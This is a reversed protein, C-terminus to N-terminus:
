VIRYVIVFPRSEYFGRVNFSQTQSGHILNDRIMKNTIYVYYIEGNDYNVKLRLNADEVTKGEPILLVNGSYSFGSKLSSKDIELETKVANVNNTKILNTTEFETEIVYTPIEANVSSYYYSNAVLNIQNGVIETTMEYNKDGLTVLIKDGKIKYAYDSNYAGDHVLYKGSKIEFYKLKGGSKFEIIRKTQNTLTTTSMSTKKVEKSIVYSTRDLVTYDVDVSQGKYAIKMTGHYKGYGSTSFLSVDVKGAMDITKQSGNQYTVELKADGFNVDDGVFYIQQMDGVIKIERVNASGFILFGVYALGCFLAVSLLILIFKKM